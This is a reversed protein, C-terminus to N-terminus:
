ATMFCYLLGMTHELLQQEIEDVSLRVSWRVKYAVSEARLRPISFTYVKNNKYNFRKESVKCQLNPKQSARSTRYAIALRFHRFLM